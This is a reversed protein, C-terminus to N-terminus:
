GHVILLPCPATHLLAQSTSGVMMGAFGGRGRSGVVLLQADEATQILHRVPRDRVIERRVTVEPHATCWPDLTRDLLSRASAPDAPDAGGGPTPVDASAHVAVLEVGRASAEILAARIAGTCADSGDVGVVVPGTGLDTEQGSWDRIVAVPCRAHAAVATTVSGAISEPADGLGRVGMAIMAARGSHELLQPIPPGDWMQREVRHDPGVIELVLSYAADMAREARNRLLAMMEATLAAADARPVPLEVATAIVVPLGRLRATLAGWRAAGLSSASGDVAVILAEAM